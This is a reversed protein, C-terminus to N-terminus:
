VFQGNPISLEPSIPTCVAPNVRCNSRCTYSNTQTGKGPSNSTASASLLAAWAEGHGLSVVTLGSLPAQGAHRTEKSAPQAIVM